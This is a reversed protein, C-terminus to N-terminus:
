VRRRNGFLTGTIREDNKKREQEHLCLICEGGRWFNPSGVVHALKIEHIPCYGRLTAFKM